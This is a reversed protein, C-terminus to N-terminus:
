SFSKLELRFDTSMAGFMLCRHQMYLVRQSQFVICFRWFTIIKSDSSWVGRCTNKASNEGSLKCIELVIIYRTTAHHLRM